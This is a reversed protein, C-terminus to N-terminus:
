LFEEKSKEMLRKTDEKINLAGFISSIVAIGAIGSGKLKHANDFTIGGIAVVPIKVAKTIAKYTELDTLPKADKKTTSGFAAGVGLYDAGDAEAKLAEELNHATAGIIAKEGLIGRAKAIAEDEQGLHVGAAGCAKCVEADDNIILPIQFSDCVKKIKIARQIYEEQSINKERLQLMTIGGLIAKYVADELEENEKLWSRDTVAYLLLDTSNFKHRQSEGALSLEDILANKYSMTGPRKRGLCFLEAKRACSEYLNIGQRVADIYKSKSIKAAGLFAGLLATMMCGAGTFRKQLCSGGPLEEFVNDPASGLTVQQGTVVVITELKKSLAKIEEMSLKTGADEVGTSFIENRKEEIEFIECLAKIETANGRICTTKVRQLLEKHLNMRFDTAGAGVPDIIIPIGLSNAKEGSAIFTELRESSPTGTNIVLADCNQTIQAAEEISDGGIATGGVALVANVADTATIYNSIIHIQPHDNGLFTTM